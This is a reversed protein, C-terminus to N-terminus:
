KKGKEGEAVAFTVGSADPTFTVDMGVKKGCGAVTWRESWPKKIDKEDKLVKTDAVTVKDAVCGKLKTNLMAASVVAPTVHDLLVPDAKTQGPALAEIGKIVGDKMVYLLRSEAKGDGCGTVNFTMIWAANKVANDAKLVRAKVPSIDSSDGCGLALMSPRMVEVMKSTDALAIKALKVEVSDEAQVAGGASLFLAVLVLKVNKM